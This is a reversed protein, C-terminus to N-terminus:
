GAPLVALARDALGMVTEHEARGHSVWGTIMLASLVEPPLRALAAEVASRLTVVLEERNTILPTTAVEPGFGVVTLGDVAEARHLGFLAFSHADISALDASGDRVALVSVAHGGTFSVPGPRVGAEALAWGLSVWGSLSGDDNAAVPAGDFAAVGGVVRPDDARAVLVSRYFGPRTAGAAFSFSGLVFANPLARVLPFGCTHSLLLDPRRWHEVLPGDPRTLEDPVGALGISRLEAATAEWFANTHARIELLDYMPLSAVGVVAAAAAAPLSV